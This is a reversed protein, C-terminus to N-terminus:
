LRGDIRLEYGLRALLEPLARISDRDKEREEPPLAEWEVLLPHLKREPDKPANHHRWGKSLLDANWRKKEVKALDEILKPSIKLPRPPGTLPELEAGLDALRDGVSDAFDRNSERLSDPLEEWPRLSPNKALTEGREIGQELYYTHRAQAILEQASGEFLAPGLVQSEAAVMRVRDTPFGSRRLAKVSEARPVETVIAGRDLCKALTSAGALADAHPLGVVFAAGPEADAPEAVLEVSFGDAIWPDTRQLEAELERAHPGALVLGPKGGDLLIRRIAHVATRAAKPGAGWVVIRRRDTRLPLGLVRKRDRGSLDENAEEVLRAAVRDPLSIFEITGGAGGWTLGSRHLERWLLQADIAVHVTPGPDPIEALCAELARLNTSDDGLSIFVHEARSAGAHLYTRPSRADGVIVTLDRARASVTGEGTPDADVAVVPSGEEDLRSAVTLGRYGLGVIVHHRRATLRVRFRDARERALTALIAMLALALTLAALYRALELQWPPAQPGNYELALLQIAGYLADFAGLGSDAERFGWYGLVIATAGFLVTVVLGTRRRPNM